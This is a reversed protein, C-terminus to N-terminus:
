SLQYCHDGSCSFLPSDASVKAPQIVNHGHPDQSRVHASLIGDERLAQVHTPFAVHPLNDDLVGRTLSLREVGGTRDPRGLWVALHM